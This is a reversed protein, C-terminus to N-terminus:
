CPYFQSIWPINPHYSSLLLINISVMQRDFMAGSCGGYPPKCSPFWRRMAVNSQRFTHHTNWGCFMPTLQKVEHYVWMQHLFLPTWCWGAQFIHRLFFYFWILWFKSWDLFCPIHNINWGCLIPIIHSFANKEALAPSQLGWEDTQM